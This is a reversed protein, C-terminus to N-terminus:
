QAVQNRAKLGTGASQLVTTTYRLNPSHV